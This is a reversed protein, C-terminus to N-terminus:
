YDPGDPLWQGPGFIQYAQHALEKHNWASRIRFVLRHQVEFPNSKIVTHFSTSKSWDRTFITQDAATIEFRFELNDDAHFGVPPIEPLTLSFGEPTQQGSLQFIIFDSDTPHRKEVGSGIAFVAERGIGRVLGLFTAGPALKGRVKIPMFGYTYFGSTPILQLTKELEVEPIPHYPDLHTARPNWRMYGFFPMKEHTFVIRLRKAQQIEGIVRPDFM